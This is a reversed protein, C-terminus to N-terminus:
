LNIKYLIYGQAEFVTKIGSKLSSDIQYENNTILIFRIGNRKMEDLDQFDLDNWDLMQEFYNDPFKGSYGNYMVKETYGAFLLNPFDSRFSNWPLILINNIETNDRIYQYIDPATAPIDSLYDFSYNLPMLDLFIIIVFIVLILHKMTQRKIFREVFRTLLTPILISICFLSIVSYRGVARVFMIPPLLKQIVLYPLPFVLKYDLNSIDFITINGIKLIPGLSFVAAIVATIGLIVILRNNRATFDGTYEHLAPENRWRKYLYTVLLYGFGIILILYSSWGMYSLSDPNYSNRTLNLKEHILKGLISYDSPIFYDKVSASYTISDQLSFQSGTEKSYRLYEKSLPYTSVLALFIILALIIFQRFNIMKSIWVGVIFIGYFVCVFVMQYWSAYFQLILIILLILKYRFRSDELVRILFYLILPLFFISQNQMHTYAFMKYPAYTFIMAGLIAGFSNNTIKRVVMYTFLFSLFYTALTISNAIFVINTNFPLYALLYCSNLTSDGVM